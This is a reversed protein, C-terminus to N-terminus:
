TTHMSWALPHVRPAPIHSPWLLSFSVWKDPTREAQCAQCAHMAHLPDRWGHLGLRGLTQKAAGAMSVM